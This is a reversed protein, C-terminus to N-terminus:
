SRVARFASDDGQHFFIRGQLEENEILAWGRGSAPDLEEQGEWSFEMRVKGDINELRCDMEGQVLGFQFHGTGDKKFTFHGPVEMSVYELDWAEMEAIVWTGVFPKFTAKMFQGGCTATYNMHGLESELREGRLNVTEEPTLYEWGMNILLQLAPLQSQVKELYSPPEYDQKECLVQEEM